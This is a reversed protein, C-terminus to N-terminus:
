DSSNPSAMTEARICNAKFKPQLLERKGKLQVMKLQTSTKNTERDRQILEKSVNVVSLLILLFRDTTTASWWIKLLLHDETSRCVKANYVGKRQQKAERTYRQTKKKTLFFFSFFFAQCVGSGIFRKRIFQMLTVNM